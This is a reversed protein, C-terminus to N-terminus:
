DDEEVETLIRAEQDATAIAIVGPCLNVARDYAFGIPYRTHIGATWGGMHYVLMLIEDRTLKIYNQLMIVSKTGHGYPENDVVAWVPEQKWKYDTNENKIWKKGLVYTDVKCMDHLLGVIRVTDEPLGLELFKNKHKLLRFVTWCHLALGGVDADHFKTSAPCTFYDSTQLFEMLEDMGTREVLSLQEIICEPIHDNDQKM